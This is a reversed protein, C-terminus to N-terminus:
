AYFASYLARDPSLKSFFQPPQFNSEYSRMTELCMIRDLPKIAKLGIACVQNRGHTYNEFEEKSVCISKWHKAWMKEPSLMEIFSVETSLKVKGEPLTAYIWLQSGVPLNIHRTRLEVTKKGSLINDVHKPKISIIADTM